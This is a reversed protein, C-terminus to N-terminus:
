KRDNQAVCGYSVVYIYKNMGSIRARDNLGTCKSQNESRKVPFIGGFKSKMKKWWKEQNPFKELFGDNCKWWNKKLFIMQFLDYISNKEKRLFILGFVM